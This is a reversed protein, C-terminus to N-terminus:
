GPQCAPCPVGLRIRPSFGPDPAPAAARPAIRSLQVLTELPVARSVFEHERLYSPLKGPLLIRWDMATRPDLRRAMGYIMTTCNSTLTNYWLPAAASEQALRVYERILGLATARQIDLRYLRVDEGRVTARVRVVDREDAAILALEYSRFFGALASYVEGREKRIEISFALPDAGAFSFSVIAHAINEGDWYSLFLDAGTLQSLRYRRNEWRPTFDTDSHWEFNRVNGVSLMDDDIRATATHAMDAAWVRDSRAEISTWWALLPLWLAALWLLAARYQGRVLRLAAALMILALGFGAAIRLGEPGPLRFWLLGAGWLTAPLLLLLATAWRLISAQM